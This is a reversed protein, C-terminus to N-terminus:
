RGTRKVFGRRNEKRVREIRKMGLHFAMLRRFIEYRWAVTLNDIILTNQSTLPTGYFTGGGKRFALAQTLGEGRRAADQGADM